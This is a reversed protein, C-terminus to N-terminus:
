NILMGATGDQTTVSLTFPRPTGTVPHSFVFINLEVMGEGESTTYLTLDYGVEIGLSIIYMLQHLFARSCVVPTTDSKGCGPELSDDIIVTAQPRIVDILQTGSVLIINSFFFENPDTECIDDQRIAITHTQNTDGTNFQILQGIVGGYDDPSVVSYFSHHTRCM